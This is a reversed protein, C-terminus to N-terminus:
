LSISPARRLSRLTPLPGLDAVCPAFAPPREVVWPQLMPPLVDLDVGQGVSLIGGLRVPVLGGQAEEEEEEEDEVIPPTACLGCVKAPYLKGHLGVREVAEWGQDLATRWAVKEAEGWSGVTREAYGTVTSSQCDACWLVVHTGKGQQGGSALITAM